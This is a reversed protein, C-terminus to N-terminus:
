LDGINNMFLRLFFIATVSDDPFREVSFQVNKDGSGTSIRLRCDKAAMMKKFVAYPVVVINRNAATVHGSTAAYSRIDIETPYRTVYSYKRGDFTIDMGNFSQTSLAADDSDSEFALVLSVNEPMLSSWIAGMRIKEESAEVTYLLAPSVLSKDAEEISVGTRATKSYYSATGACGALVCSFIMLLLPSRIMYGCATM